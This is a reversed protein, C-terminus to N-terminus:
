SDSKTKKGEKELGKSIANGISELASSAGGKIPEIRVGSKDIIIVAVPKVGGGAGVGAGQGEGSGSTGGSLDGKGTGGGGGFGFGISLLPILTTDGIQIPDGVVSKANLMREVEDLTSKLLNEVEPM